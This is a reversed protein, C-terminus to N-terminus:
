IIIQIFFISAVLDYVDSEAINSDKNRVIFATPLEIAIEDPTGIVCAEKIDPSEILYSEIESPSVQFNCYKMIDKKRDVIFLDGDEDFHGIDSSLFFGEDDLAEDTAKKNNYYGLFTDKVKFCIEGDEGIGLRHGAENIIKVIYCSMLEGVSDKDGMNCSVVGATESLGYCNHTKGNPLRANIENQVHFPTRGGTIVHFKVSSFDFQNFRDHKTISIAQHPANWIFTVKYKAIFQFQLDASFTQTSIVRTAGNLMGMLMVYWGSLWYLSSFCLLVDSSNIVDFENITNFLAAHSLRVGLSIRPFVIETTNAKNRKHNKKGKSLGTTGSSCVIAATENEGDVEVPRHDIYKM